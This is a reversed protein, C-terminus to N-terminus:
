KQNLRLCPAYLSAFILINGVVTISAALLPYSALYIGVAVTGAEILFCASVRLFSLGYDRAIASSVFYIVYGILVAVRIAANIPTTADQITVIAVIGVLATSAAAFALGAIPTTARIVTVLAPPVIATRVLVAALLIIAIALVAHTLFEQSMSFGCFAVTSIILAMALLAASCSYFLKKRADM